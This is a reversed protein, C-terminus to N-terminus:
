RAGINTRFQGFISIPWGKWLQPYSTLQHTAAINDSFHMFTALQLLQDVSCDTFLRMMNNFAAKAAKKKCLFPRMYRGINLSQGM